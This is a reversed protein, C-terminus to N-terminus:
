LQQPGVFQPIVFLNSFSKSMGHKGPIVLVSQLYWAYSSQRILGLFLGMLLKM